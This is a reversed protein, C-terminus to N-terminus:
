ERPVNGDWYTPVTFFLTVSWSLTPTWWRGSALTSWPFTGLNMKSRKLWCFENQSRENWQEFNGQWPSGINSSIEQLRPFPDTISDAQHLLFHHQCGFQMLVPAGVSDSVLFVSYRLSLSLLFFRWLKEGRSFWEASDFIAPIFGTSYSTLM